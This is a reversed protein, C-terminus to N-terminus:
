LDLGATTATSNYKRLFCFDLHIGRSQNVEALAQLLLVLPSLNPSLLVFGASYLIAFVDLLWLILLWIVLGSGPQGEFLAHSRLGAWEHLLIVVGAFGEVIANRLILLSTVGVELLAAALSGTPVLPGDLAGHFDAPSHQLLSVGGRLRIVLSEAMLGNQLFNEIAWVAVTGGAQSESLDSHKKVISRSIILVVMHAILMEEILFIICV